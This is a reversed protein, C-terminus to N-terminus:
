SQGELMAQLAREMARLGELVVAPPLAHVFTVPSKKPGRDSITVDLLGDDGPEFEIGSVDDIAGMVDHLNELTDIRQRLQNRTLVASM